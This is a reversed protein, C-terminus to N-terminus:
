EADPLPSIKPSITMGQEYCRPCLMTGTGEAVTGGPYVVHWGKTILNDHDEAEMTAGCTACTFETETMARLRGSPAPSPRAAQAGDATSQRGWNM